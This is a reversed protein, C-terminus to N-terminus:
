VIRDLRFWVTKGVAESEVGWASSMSEVLFLGRGSEALLEPTREQPMAPGADRVSVRLGNGWPEASMSVPGVGHRVANTVLESTLLLLAYLDERLAVADAGPRTALVYEVLRERARTAAAPGHDLNWTSLRHM